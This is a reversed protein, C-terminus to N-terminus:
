PHGSGADLARSLKEMGDESLSLRQVGRTYVESTQSESHGQIAMIQYQTCGQQALLHGVAKRIGHASRGELGAQRSWKCFAASMSDASAFPDGYATRMFPGERHPLSDIMDALQPLIPVQVLVSGRKEPQWELFRKGSWMVQQDFGLWRADGIRCSTHTLLTLASRPMTGIRHHEKFQEIDAITWPKAGPEPHRLRPVGKAPNNEVYGRELAWGFISNLTKLVENATPPNAELADRIRFVVGTTMTTFDFDRIPPSGLNSLKRVFVRHKKLTKESKTGNQVQREFHKLYQTFLWGCTSSPEIIEVPRLGIKGQRALEYRQNFEAHGPSVPLTIKRQKQGAVRVRWRTKGHGDPEECLGPYAAKNIRQKSM